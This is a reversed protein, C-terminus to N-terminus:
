VLMSGGQLKLMLQEMLLQANMNRNLHRKSELITTLQESLQKTSTQLADSEFIHRQDPFSLHDFKDMQIYLLDRYIFLFLDLALEIQSKEKFHSFFDVQLRTMAEFPHEKLVEYLKLVIKRAQVFWEDTSLTIGEELQNTIKSLLAAMTPHVGEAVLREKFILPPLSHFSILQCRSLITPLMNHSQETILIATTSQHPEELFKLLSNAAQVTMKDAFNVIYTKRRSEMGTKSFEEQLARVQDKKISLGDPEVLHVDPHNGHAIRQCQDCEGCPLGESPVRCFLGQALFIAMDKKGTGRAGEFLYAHAIRQKTLGNVLMKAALPQWQQLETWTATM